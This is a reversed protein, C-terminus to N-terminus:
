ITWGYKLMLFQSSYMQHEKLQTLFQQIKVSPPVSHKPQRGALDEPKAWGGCELCNGLTQECGHFSTVCTPVMYLDKQNKQHVCEQQLCCRVYTEPMESVFHQNRM